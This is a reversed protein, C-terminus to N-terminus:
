FCFTTEEIKKVIFIIVISMGNMWLKQLEAQEFCRKLKKEILSCRKFFSKKAFSNKEEDSKQMSAM